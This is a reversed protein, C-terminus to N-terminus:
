KKNSIKERNKKERTRAKMGILFFFLPVIGCNHSRGIACGGIGFYNKLCRCSQNSLGGFNEHDISRFGIDFGCNM